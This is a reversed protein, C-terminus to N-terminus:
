YLIITNSFITGKEENEEREKDKEEMWGRMWGKRWGRRRDGLGQDSM